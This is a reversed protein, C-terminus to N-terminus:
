REGLAVWVHGDQIHCPYTKLRARNKSIDGIFEWRPSLGDELVPVWDRVEGTQLDFCSDHWRCM